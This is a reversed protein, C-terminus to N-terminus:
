KVSQNYLQQYTALIPTALFNDHVFKLNRESLEGLMKPSNLFNNLLSNYDSSSTIILNGAPLIEHVVPIDWTIIPLGYSMAEIFVLGFTEARSLLIFIDAAQLFASVDHQFGQFFIQDKQKFTALLHDLEDTFNPDVGGVVQLEWNTNPWNSLVNLLRDFGKNHSVTGVTVFKIKEGLVLSKCNGLDVGQNIWNPIVLVKSKFFSTKSSFQSLYIIRTAFLEAISKLLYHGAFVFTSLVPNKHSQANSIPLSHITIVTKINLFWGLISMIFIAKPQHAHILNFQNSRVFRALKLWMSPNVLDYWGFPITEKNISVEQLLPGPQFALLNVFHDGKFADMLKQVHRESGYLNPKDLVYLIKM